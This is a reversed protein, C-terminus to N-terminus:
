AAKSNDVVLKPKNKSGKPRGGKKRATAVKVEEARVPVRRTPSIVYMGFGSVCEFLVAVALAWIETIKETPVGTIKAFFVMQPDVPKEFKETPLVRKTRAVEQEADIIKQVHVIYQSCFIRSEPAMRAEPVTCGSTSLYRQNTKMTDQEEKLRKLNSLALTYENRKQQMTSNDFVQEANKNVRATLAFGAANSLGYMFVGLWMFFAVTAKFKFNKSWAIAAFPLGFVKVLDTSLGAVVFMWKEIDDHGQSYGYRMNMISTCATIALIGAACVYYTAKRPSADIM